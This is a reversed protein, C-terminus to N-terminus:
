ERYGKTTAALPVEARLWGRTMSQVRVQQRPPVYGRARWTSLTNQRLSLAKAAAKQSGFYTILEDYTM